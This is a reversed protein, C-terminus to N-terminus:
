SMTIKTVKIIFCIAGVYLYSYNNFTCMRKSNKKVTNNTCTTVDRLIFQTTKYLKPWFKCREKSIQKKIIHVDAGSTMETKEVVWEQVWVRQM